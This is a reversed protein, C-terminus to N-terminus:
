VVASTMGAATAAKGSVYRGKPGVTSIFKLMVSKAVGPDGVLLIHIDGRTKGGDTKTKKVGSMLQLLLAEKINLFGYVSPAISESLKTFVHPDAALELIQKTEEETIELDEYSEEMPHINNAEIAIDYRTSISGTKLPVQVEKLVGYVRAKSGPTTREEMKQDVLDEKLFVSIRRPQEGGELADPSEEIIIRQTDVMEKSLLKFPGKWGCSCRSPERFKNDIQLVSLIAGCNPCEFRANVVQPRVESAQRVIGEITIIKDLHKARIERIKIYTSNPLDLLRIRTKEINTINSEELALELMALTEEPHELVSDALSRANQALDNFNLSVVNNGKRVSQGIEKRYSDFFNKGELILEDHKKKDM